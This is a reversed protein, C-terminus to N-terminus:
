RAYTTRPGRSEVNIIDSTGGSVARIPQSARPSVRAGRSRRPIVSVTPPIAQATRSRVFGAALSPEM